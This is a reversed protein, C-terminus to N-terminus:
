TLYLGLRQSQDNEVPTQQFDDIYFESLSDNLDQETTINHPENTIPVNRKAQFQKLVSDIKDFANTIIEKCDPTLDIM